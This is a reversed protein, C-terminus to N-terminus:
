TNQTLAKLKSQNLSRPRLKFKVRTTFSIFMLCESLKKETRLPISIVTVKRLHILTTYIISSLYLIHSKHIEDGRLATKKFRM